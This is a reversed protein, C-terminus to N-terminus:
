QTTNQWKKRAEMNRKNENVPTSIAKEFTWHLKFLRNHIFKYDLGLENCWDTLIQKKGNYEILINSRRNRSQEKMTAWRCNQPCYDGDVDIRDITLGEEKKTDLVWQKFTLYDHWEDCVKIGRGGYDKYAKHNPNNCRAMISCWCRYLPTKSENSATPHGIHLCGCSKVVGSKLNSGRVITITGCDCQCKWVTQGNSTNPMRELVLLKNFKQGTLDIFKSM